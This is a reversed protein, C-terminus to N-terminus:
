LIQYAGSTFLNKSVSASVGYLSILGNEPCDNILYYGLEKDADILISEPSISLMTGRLITSPTEVEVYDGVSLKERIFKLM